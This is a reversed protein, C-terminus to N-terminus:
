DEGRWRFSISNIEGIVETPANNGGGGGVGLRNVAACITDGASFKRGLSIHLNTSNLTAEPEYTTVVRYPATFGGGPFLGYLYRVTNVNTVNCRIGVEVDLWGTRNVEFVDFGANPTIIPSTEVASPFQQRVWTAAIIANAQAGTQRYYAHEGELKDVRADLATRAAAAVALETDVALALAEIQSPGHPSEGLIPYPLGYTPTAGPV